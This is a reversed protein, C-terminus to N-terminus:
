AAVTGYEAEFYEALRSMVTGDPAIIAVDGVPILKEDEGYEFGLPEGTYEHYKPRLSAHRNRTQDRVVEETVKIARYRPAIEFWPSKPKAPEEIEALKAATENIENQFDIPSQEVPEEEHLEDEFRVKFGSIRAIAGCLERPSTEQIGDAMVHILEKGDENLFTRAFLNGDTGESEWRFMGYKRNPNDTANHYTEFTFENSMAEGETHGGQQAPTNTATTM